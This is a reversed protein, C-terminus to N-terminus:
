TGYPHIILVGNVKALKRVSVMQYSNRLALMLLCNLKLIDKLLTKELLTKIFVYEPTTQKWTEIYINTM